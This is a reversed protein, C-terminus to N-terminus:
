YGIVTDIPLQTGRPHLRRLNGKPAYPMVIFPVGNEVDFDYIPAIHPHFLHAVLQAEQHFSAEEKSGLHTHSMVKIAVDRNLKMDQGLYVVGFGGRKIEQIVRYKGIQRGSYDIM